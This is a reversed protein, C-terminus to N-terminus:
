RQNAQLAQSALTALVENTLKEVLGGYTFVKFTSGPQRWGSAIVDFKHREFDVNGVEALAPLNVGMLALALGATMLHGKILPKPLQNFNM